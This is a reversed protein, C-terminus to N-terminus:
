ELKLLFSKKAWGQRNGHGPPPWATQGSDRRVVAHIWGEGVGPATTNVDVGQHCPGQAVPFVPWAHGPTVLVRHCKWRDPPVWLPPCHPRGALGKPGSVYVSLCTVRRSCVFPCDSVTILVHARLRNKWPQLRPKQSEWGQYIPIIVPSNTPHFSTTQAFNESFYRARSLCETITIQTTGAHPSFKFDLWLSFSM